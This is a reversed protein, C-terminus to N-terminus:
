ASGASRVVRLCRRQMTIEDVQRGRQDDGGLEIGQAILPRGVRLRQGRGPNGNTVQFGPAVGVGRQRHDVDDEGARRQAASRPPVARRIGAARWESFAGGAQQRSGPPQDPPDDLSLASVLPRHSRGPAVVLSGLVAAGKARRPRGPGTGQSWPAPRGHPSRPARCPERCRGGETVSAKVPAFVAGILLRHDSERAAHSGTNVERSPTDPFLSNPRRPSRRAPGSLARSSRQAAWRRYTAAALGHGGPEHSRAM